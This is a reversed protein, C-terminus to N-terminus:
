FFGVFRKRFTIRSICKFSFAYLYILYQSSVFTMFYGFGFYHIPTHALSFSFFCVFLWKTYSDCLRLSVFHLCYRFYHCCCCRCCCGCLVSVCVNRRVFLFAFCFQLIVFFFNWKSIFCCFLKLTADFTLSRTNSKHTRSRARTRPSCLWERRTKRFWLSALFLLLLLLLWMFGIYSTFFLFLVSFFVCWTLFLFFLFVSYRQNYLM